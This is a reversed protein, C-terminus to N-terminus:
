VMARVLAVKSAYRLMTKCGTSAILVFGAPWMYIKGIHRAGAVVIDGPNSGVARKFDLHVEPHGNTGSEAKEFTFTVAYQRPVLNGVVGDERDQSAVSQSM